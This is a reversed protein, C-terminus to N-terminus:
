GSVPPISLIYFLFCRGKKYVRYRNLEAFIRWLPYFCRASTAYWVWESIPNPWKKFLIWPINIPYARRWYSCEFGTRTAIHKIASPSRTIEGGSQCEDGLSDCSTGLDRVFVLGWPQLLRRVCILFEHIEKNNLYPFVGGIFIVDFRSHNEAVKMYELLTCQYTELNRVSHTSKYLTKYFVSSPEIAVCHKAVAIFQRTMRGNGAGVDLINPSEKQPFPLKSLVHTKLFDFDIYSYLHSVKDDFYRNPADPHMDAHEESFAQIMNENFREM